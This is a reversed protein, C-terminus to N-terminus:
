GDFGKYIFPEPMLLRLLLPRHFDSRLSVYTLAPVPSGVFTGVNGARKRSPSRIILSVGRGHYWRGPFYSPRPRTRSVLPWRTAAAFTLLTVSACRSWCRSLMVSRELTVGAQDGSGRLYQFGQFSNGGVTSLCVDVLRHSADEEENAFGNGLRIAKGGREHGPSSFILSIGFCSM